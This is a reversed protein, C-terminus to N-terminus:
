VLPLRDYRFLQFVDHGIPVLGSGTVVRKWLRPLGSSRVVRAAAAERVLPMVSFDTVDKTCGNPDPRSM